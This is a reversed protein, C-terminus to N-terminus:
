PKGRQVDITTLFFINPSAEHWSYPHWRYLGSTIAQGPQYYKNAEAARRETRQM